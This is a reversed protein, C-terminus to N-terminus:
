QASFFSPVSYLTGNGIKEITGDPWKRVGDILDYNKFKGEDLIGQPRRLRGLKELKEVEGDYWEGDNWDIRAIVKEGDKRQRAVFDRSPNDIVTEGVWQGNVLSGAVFGGGNLMMVAPGTCRHLVYPTPQMCYATGAELHFISPGISSADQFEGSVSFRDPPSDVAWTGYGRPEFSAGNGVQGKYTKGDYYAADMVGRARRIVATSNTASDYTTRVGDGVPGNDLRGEWQLYSNGFAVKLRGPGTMQGAEFIGSYTTTSGNSHTGSARGFGHPRGTSDVQGEYNLTRGQYAVAQEIYRQGPAIRVQENTPISELINGILSDLNSLQMAVTKLMNSLQKFSEDQIAAVLKNTGLQKRISDFQKKSEQSNRDFLATTDNNSGKGVEREVRNTFLKELLSGVTIALAMQAQAKSLQPRPAARAAEERRDQRAVREKELRDNERSREEELRRKRAQEQRAAAFCSELRASIIRSRKSSDDGATSRCDVSGKSLLGDGISRCVKEDAEYRQSSEKRAARAWSACEEASDPASPADDVDVNALANSAALLTGVALWRRTTAEASSLPRSTKTMGTGETARIANQRIHGFTHVSTSPHSHRWVGDRWAEGAVQLDHPQQPGGQPLPGAV